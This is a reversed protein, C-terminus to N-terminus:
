PRRMFFRGQNVPHSVPRGRLLMMLPVTLTKAHAIGHEWLGDEGWCDGHDACVIVTGPLFRELLPALQQDVWALCASQRQRCESARNQKQFPVCPNDGREWAAGEHWYPVHTEGVNLFVFPPSDGCSRLTEEIWDLQIQLSWSNGAFWFHDFDKILEQGTESAPDFWNVAGTGITTYGQRRMGTIISNGDLLFAQSESTAQFGAHGLRFLKSFKSNLFALPKTIGPLFGMFMAAHSGYTFYSPAQARHVPGVRDLEPTPTKRFTDYRCSDLTILLVGAPYRHGAPLVPDPWDQPIGEAATPLAEHFAQWSLRIQEPLLSAELRFRDAAPGNGLAEELCRALAGPEPAALKGEPEHLLEPIGGVGTCVVRLGSGLFEQVAYPSNEILSPIVVVGGLRQVLTRAADRDLQGHHEAQLGLARLDHLAAEARSGSPGPVDAGVLHVAQPPSSLRAVAELFLGIGKREELRGYFILSDPQEPPVARVTLREAPVNQQVLTPRDARTAEPLQRQLWDALAQSPSVLWNASAMAVTEGAQVDAEHDREAPDNPLPTVERVWATCGHIGCVLSPRAEGPWGQEFARSLGLWDAVHIVDYGGSALERALGMSLDHLGTDGPPLLRVPLSAAPGERRDEGRGVLLVEVAHGAQRLTLGLELFATGIGGSAGIGQLEPTVLAVRKRLRGDQRPPLATHLQLLPHPKLWQRLTSALLGDEGHVMGELWDGRELREQMALTLSTCSPGDDRAQDQLPQQLDPNVAKHVAERWRSCPQHGLFSAMRECCALPERQLSRFSILLRSVDADRFIETYTRQWLAEAWLWPVQGKSVFSRCNAAADRHVVVFRPEVELQRLVALWSPLLLATRPDKVVWLPQGASLRAELLRTLRSEFADFIDHLAPDSRDPLPWSSRYSSWHRGLRQLAADNLAVADRDELYDYAPRSAEPIRQRLLLRPGMPAGAAHLVAAALSTGSNHM